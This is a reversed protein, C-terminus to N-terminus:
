TKTPKRVVDAYYKDIQADKVYINKLSYQILM